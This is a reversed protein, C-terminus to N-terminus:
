LRTCDIAVRLSYGAAPDNVVAPNAALGLRRLLLVAVPDLNDSERRGVTCAPPANVPEVDPSGFTIDYYFEPDFVDVGARGVVARPDLLPLTFEVTLAAEVVGVSFNEAPGFAAPEGGMTIRTFYNGNLIWSLIGGERLHGLLEEGTFAGDGNQDLQPGILTSYDYDFVWKERVSALRGGDDFTPAVSAAIWAHPHAQASASLGIAAVLAPAFVFAVRM